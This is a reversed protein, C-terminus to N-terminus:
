HFGSPLMGTYKQFTKSFHRVSSYGVSEAAQRVSVAPNNKLIKKAEEMRVQTVFDIYKQGTKEHFLKSLYTPSVNFKESVHSMSVDHSYNECIYNKIMTIDNVSATTASDNIAYGCQELLDTLDEFTQIYIPRDFIGSLYNQLVNTDSLSFARIFDHNQKMDSIEQRLASQNQSCYLNLISTLTGAFSLQASLGPLAEMNKIFMPESCNRIMRIDAIRSIRQSVDYIERITKRNGWFVSFANPPLEESQMSIFHTLRSADPADCVLCLNGDTNFFLCHKLISVNRTCFKQLNDCLQQKIKKQTDRNFIDIYFQYLIYDSSDAPQFDTEEPSFQDAMNFSCTVSHSFVANSKQRNQERKIEIREFLKQLTELEVPKLIYDFASLSLAQRAYEFDAYGSLIIWVTSDSISRCQRLAELGNMLPMKVDLFVIDPTQMRLIQVVEGGNRAHLFTHQGPYLEEIMSQLGLRILREDDALLILM